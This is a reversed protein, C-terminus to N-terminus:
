HTLITILMMLRSLIINHFIRYTNLLELYTAPRARQTFLTHKSNERCFMKLIESRQAMILVKMIPSFYAVCYIYMNLIHVKYHTSILSFTKRRTFKLVHYNKNIVKHFATWRLLNARHIFLLFLLYKFPKKGILPNIRYQSHSKQCTNIM